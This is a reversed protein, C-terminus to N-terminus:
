YEALTTTSSTIKLFGPAASGLFPVLTNYQFIVTVVVEFCGKYQPTTWEATRSGLDGPGPDHGLATKAAACNAYAGAAGTESPYICVSTQGVAPNPCAAPLSTTISAGSSFGGLAAKVTELIRTDKLCGNGSASPTLTTGSCSGSTAGFPNDSTDANAVAQRAGQRAADAVTTTAWDVRFLDVTLALIFFLVPFILAFEVLAQGRSRRSSVVM